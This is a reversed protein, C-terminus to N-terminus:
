RAYLKLNRQCSHDIPSATLSIKIKTKISNQPHDTSRDTPLGRVRDTTPTRPGPTLTKPNGLGFPQKNYMIKGQLPALFSSSIWNEKDVEAKRKKSSIKVRFWFSRFCSFGFSVFVEYFQVSEFPSM